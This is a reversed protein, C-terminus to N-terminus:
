RLIAAPVMSRPASDGFVLPLNFMPTLRDRQRTTFDFCIVSNTATLQSPIKGFTYATVNAFMCVKAAYTTVAKPADKTADPTATALIVAASRGDFTYLSPGKTITPTGYRKLQRLIQTNVFDGLKQADHLITPCADDIISFVLASTDPTNTGVALPTQVCPPKDPKSKPLTYTSPATAKPDVPVFTAPYIFTMDFDLEKFTKMAPLQSSNSSQVPSQAPAVAILFLLSLAALRSLM